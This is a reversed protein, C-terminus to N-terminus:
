RKLLGKIEQLSNIPQVDRKDLVTYGNVPYFSPAQNTQLLFIARQGKELKPSRYWSVDDSEAYYVTVQKTKLTGKLVSEISIVAKRYEPDHESERGRRTEVNINSELVTGQIVLSAKSLETRLSDVHLQVRQQTVAKKLTDQMKTQLGNPVEKVGLNKGYYWGITYFVKQTGEKINKDSALLVTIEKGKEEEYPSVADIVENIKVIATPGVTKIDINSANMKVITGSFIFNSKAIISKFTEQSYSPTTCFAILLLTLFHSVALVTSKM